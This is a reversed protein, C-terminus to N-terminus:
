HAQGNSSAPSRELNSGGVLKHSHLDGIEQNEGCQRVLQDELADIAPGGLNPSIRPGPGIIGLKGQM